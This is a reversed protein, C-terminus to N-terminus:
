ATFIRQRSPFSKSSSAKLDTEKQHESLAKPKRTVFAEATTICDLILPKKSTTSHSPKFLISLLSKGSRLKLPKTPPLCQRLFCHRLMSFNALSCQVPLMLIIEFTEVPIVSTFVSAHQLYSIWFCLEIMSAGKDIAQALGARWSILNSRVKSVRFSM